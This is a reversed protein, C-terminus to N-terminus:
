DPAFGAKKADRFGRRTVYGAALRYLLMSTPLDYGSETHPAYLVRRSGPIVEFWGTHKRQNQGMTYRAFSHGLLGGRRGGPPLDIGEAAELVIGNAEVGDVSVPTVIPYGDAGVWGLLRNPLKKIRRAARRHNMRPETGKAPTTQPPPAQNPLPKGYVQPQGRCALDPWVVVREVDIEMPVRWHYYRLWREFLPGVDRPGAYREWAELNREIWGRDSPPGHSGRGQLLVFEPRESFGHARSHYAIAVKPYKALKEFKKTAGISSTFPTAKGAEPDTLGTNTLPTLVVGKAPTVRAFAFAQDGALIERVTEPWIATRTASEM